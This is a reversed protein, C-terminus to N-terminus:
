SLPEFYDEEIIGTGILPLMAWHNQTFLTCLIGYLVEVDEPFDKRTDLEDTIRTAIAIAWEEPNEM